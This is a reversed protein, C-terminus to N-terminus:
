LSNDFFFYCTLDCKCIGVNHGEGQWFQSGKAKLWMHMAIKIKSTIKLQVYNNSITYKKIM